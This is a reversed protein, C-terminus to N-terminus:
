SPRTSVVAEVILTGGSLFTWDDSQEQVFIDYTYTGPQITNTDSIHLELTGGEFPALYGRQIGPLAIVTGEEPATVFWRIDLALSGDGNKAQMYADKVTVVVGAEDKWSYSSRYDQGKKFRIEVQEEQEMSTITNLASVNITGKAVPQTIVEGTLRGPYTTLSGYVLSQRKYTKAIVDFQLEGTPLDQTQEKTLSLLIGGESTIECNITAVTYGNTKIRSWAEIPRIIRRTRRDRVILLREWPIGQTATYKVTSTM